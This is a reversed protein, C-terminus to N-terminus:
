VTVQEVDEILNLAHHAFPFIQESVRIEKTGTKVVEQLNRRRM